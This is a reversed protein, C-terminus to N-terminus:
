LRIPSLRFPPGRGALRRSLPSSPPALVAVVRSPPMALPGAEPWRRRSRRARGAALELVARAGRALLAWALGVLIAAPGAWWGGDGFAQVLVSVHASGLLVELTEQGVYALLLAAAAGAWLVSLRVAARAKAARERGRGRAVRWVELLAMAACVCLLLVLGPVMSEVYADGQAVLYHGARSGYALVYRLQHVAVTAVPLALLSLRRRGLTHLAGLM